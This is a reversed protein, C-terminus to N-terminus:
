SLRETLFEPGRHLHVVASIIVLGEEIRYAIGCPFKKLRRLRFDAMFFAASEPSMVIIKITQHFRDLFRDGLGPSEKEYADMAEELEIRASGLFKYSSM